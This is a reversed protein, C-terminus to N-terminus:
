GLVVPVLAWVPQGWPEQVEAEEAVLHAVAEQATAAKAVTIGKELFVLEAMGVQGRQPLVVAAVQDEM